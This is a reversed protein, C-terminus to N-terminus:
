RQLGNIKLLLTRCLDGDFSKWPRFGNRTSPSVNGRKKWMTGIATASKGKRRCRRCGLSGSESVVPLSPFAVLGDMQLTCCNLVQESKIISRVTAGKAYALCTQNYVDVIGVNSGKEILYKVIQPDSPPSCVLSSASKYISSSSFSSVDPEGSM